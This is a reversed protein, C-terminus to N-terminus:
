ECVGHVTEALWCDIGDERWVFPDVWVGNVLLDWHLHPGTSLGTSGVTGVLDGQQITSGVAVDVSDLHYFGTYVGLGHDIIVAGGRVYLTEALVIVGAAPAYVKTGRYAAFDLGEHYSSYPGGNYSRRAGYFSSHYLYGTVPEDFQGSPLYAASQIEWLEFLRAREAAISEADIQAAAGTLTISNFTWLKKQFQLPQSWLMTRTCEPAALHQCEARASKIETVIDLHPSGEWFFAGTALLGIGNQTTSSLYLNGGESGIASSGGLLNAQAKGRFGMGEGTRGPIHSLELDAFGAPYEKVTEAGPVFISRAPQIHAPHNMDNLLALQWAPIGGDASLQFISRDDAILRGTTKPLTGDPISISRGIVPERFRNPHPNAAQLAEVTSGYRLALARWSDGPLVYHSTPDSQALLQTQTGLLVAFFVFITFSTKKIKAM